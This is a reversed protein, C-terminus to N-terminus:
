YVSKEIAYATRESISHKEESPIVGNRLQNQVKTLDSLRIVNSTSKKHAATSVIASHCPTIDRVNRFQEYLGDDGWRKSAEALSEVNVDTFNSSGGGDTCNLCTKM